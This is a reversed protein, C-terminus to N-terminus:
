VRHSKEIERKATYLDSEVRLGLVPNHLREEFGLFIGRRRLNFDTDSRERGGTPAVAASLDHRHSGVSYYPRKERVMKDWPPRDM